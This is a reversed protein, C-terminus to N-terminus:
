TEELQLYVGTNEPLAGLPWERRMQTQKSHKVLAQTIKSSREDHSAGCWQFTRLYM